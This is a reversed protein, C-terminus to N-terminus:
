LRRAPRWQACRQTPVLHINCRKRIPRLAVINHHITLQGFDYTKGLISEFARFHEKSITRGSGTSCVGSILWVPQGDMPLDVNMPRNLFNVHLRYEASPATYNKCAQPEPQRAGRKGGWVCVTDDPSTMVIQDLYDVSCDHGYIAPGVRFLPQHPTQGRGVAEVYGM